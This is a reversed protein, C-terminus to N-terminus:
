YKCPREKMQIKIPTEFFSVSRIKKPCEEDAFSVQRKSKWWKRIDLIKTKVINIQCYENM